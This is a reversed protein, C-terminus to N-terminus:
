DDTREGPIQFGAARENEEALYAVMDPDDKPCRCKAGCWCGIRYTEEDGDDEVMFYNSKCYPCPDAKTIYDYGRIVKV